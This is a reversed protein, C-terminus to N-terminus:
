FLSPFNLWLSIFWWGIDIIGIILAGSKKSGRGKALAGFIVALVGFFLPLFLLGIVGLITGVKNYDMGQDSIKESEKINKDDVFLEHLLEESAGKSRLKTKIEDKTLGRKKLQFLYKELKSLENAVEIEGKTRRKIKNM